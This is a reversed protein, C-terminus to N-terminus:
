KLLDELQRIETHLGAMLKKRLRVQKKLNYRVQKDSLDVQSKDPVYELSGQEHAIRLKDNMYQLYDVQKKREAKMNM